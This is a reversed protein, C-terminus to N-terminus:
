RAQSKKMTIISAALIRALESAELILKNIATNNLLENLLDLWYVVENASKLAHSYFNIYDKKSSASNAEKMNAGISCASRILQDAIIWFQRKNPFLETLKIAEISFKLARKIFDNKNNM